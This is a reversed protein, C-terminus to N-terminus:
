FAIQLVVQGKKDDETKTKDHTKEYAAVLYNDGTIRYSAGGITTNIRDNSVTTDPDLSDYRAFFAVKRYTPIIFKGFVSYGKKKTTDSGSINGKGSMYEGIFVGYRSQYSLIGTNNSWTPNTAANGKGTIGFYTLQLGPLVDPLPRVTLRGEIAKNQNQEGTTSSYGGGNYVGIHYGGFRGTYHPNDVEEVQEATLKGGFNGLISVGMDSSTILGRKDQFMPSQMRYTNIGEEFDLLPTHGLGVRVDNDTIPGLDPTLFDAYLYKMRITYDGTTTSSTKIDPTVRLKFWPTIEKKINIYGRQLTFRNYNSKTAGGTQGFSYDIYVTTGISLGKLPTKGQVEEAEAATLTGKDVLKKLLPDNVEAGSVAPVLLGLGLALAILKRKM